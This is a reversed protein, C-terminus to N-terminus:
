VVHTSIKKLTWKKNKFVAEIFGGSGGNGYNIYFKNTNKDKKIRGLHVPFMGSKYDSKLMNQKKEPYILVKVNKPTIKQFYDCDSFYGTFFYNSKSFNFNQYDNDIVQSYLDAFKSSESKYLPNVDTFDPVGDSDTDASKPNLLILEEFLDNFRDHDTDKRVADLNIEFALRDRVAETPPGFPYGWSESIRILSGHAVLKNGSIFNEPQQDNLYSFKSLGLYYANPINNKVELFWYGFQNEGIGYIINNTHQINKYNFQEGFNKILDSFKLQYEEARKKWANEDNLFDMNRDNNYDEEYSEINKNTTFKVHDPNAKIIDEPKDISFEKYQVKNDKGDEFCSKETQYQKCSLTSIPILMLYFLKM